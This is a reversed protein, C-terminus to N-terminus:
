PKARHFFAPENHEPEHSKGRNKGSRKGSRGEKEDGVGQDETDFILM